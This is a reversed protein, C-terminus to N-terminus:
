NTCMELLMYVNDSDEFFHEFKVVNTHSLSRHIKIESMLKQKARSRTLTSKAVVKAAYIKRNDHSLFEYCRAFGGKGIFKGKNYRRIQVEGNPKVIHEEIITETNSERSRRLTSRSSTSM